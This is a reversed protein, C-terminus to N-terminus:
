KYLVLLLYVIIAKWEPHLKLYDRLIKLSKIIQLRVTDKSIGLDDAIEEYTLGEFRSKQFILNCREPLLSLADNLIAMYQEYIVDDDPNIHSILTNVTEDTLQQHTKQAKLANLITNKVIKFLLASFTKQEDIQERYNWVKVFSDQLVEESVERSQTIKYAYQYVREQYRFFLEEFARQDNNQKILLLLSTESFDLYKRKM